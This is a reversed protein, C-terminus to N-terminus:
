AAEPTNLVEVVARQVVKDELSAIGLPRQRGDAKPIYGRRSPRARYAGGHLRAHLGRLNEELQETYQEWTVGDVGPAADKKLAFFAGRLRQLDVHHLLATLRLRKDQSRGSACPRACQARPDPETDPARKARGHTGQGPGKGGGAEAATTSAKNTPMTPLVPRDSQGADHMAPTRGKAKGARGAVGDAAPSVPSERNERLFSGCTRRTESRAPGDPSKRKRGRDTHGEAESLSTPAGSHRIERSLVTGTRAGTLAEGGDERVVACSEPDDHTALGEIHPEKM